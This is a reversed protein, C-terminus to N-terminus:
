RIMKQLAMMVDMLGASEFAQAVALLAANRAMEEAEDQGLGEDEAAGMEVEQLLNLISDTLQDTTAVNAFSGLAMEANRNERLLKRKEEKIIRRLQKKTIKM